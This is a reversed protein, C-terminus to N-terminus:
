YLFLAVLRLYTSRNVTYDIVYLLVDFYETNIVSSNVVVYRCISADRSSMENNTM